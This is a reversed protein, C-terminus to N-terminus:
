TDTFSVRVQRQGGQFSFADNKAPAESGSGGTELPTISTEQRPNVAVGQIPEPGLDLRDAGGIKHAEQEPPLPYIRFM